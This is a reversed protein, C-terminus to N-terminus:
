HSLLYKTLAGLAATVFPFLLVCLKVFEGRSDDNNDANDYISHLHKDIKDFDRPAHSM